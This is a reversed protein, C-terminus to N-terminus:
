ALKRNDLQDLFEDKTSITITAPIMSTIARWAHWMFRGLTEFDDITAGHHVFSSRISYVDRVDKILKRRSEITGEILFAMREALNQQIPETNNRLFLSELAVLIYVLKDAPDKATASRAYIFIADLFTKQFPTLTKSVALLDSLIKLGAEMAVKVTEKDIREIGSSKGLRRDNLSHFKGEELLLVIARDSLESGWINYSTTVKPHFSAPHFIRLLLLAKRTEELCIENARNPEAEILLTAAAYGQFKRIHREFMERFSDEKEPLDKICQAQLDEVMKKSITKFCIRGVVFTEEIQLFKIPLWVEKISIKASAQEIIFSTLDQNMVGMCRRKIWDFIVKKITEQSVKASFDRQKSISEVLKLITKYNENIIGYQKREHFFYFGIEDGYGNAIASPHFEIIDENTLHQKVHFESSVKNERQGKQPLEEILSILSEGKADFNAKADKHVEIM